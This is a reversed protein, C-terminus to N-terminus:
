YCRILSITCFSFLFRKEKQLHFPLHEPLKQIPLLPPKTESSSLDNSPQNSPIPNSSLVEQYVVDKMYGYSTSTKPKFVKVNKASGVRSLSVYLQGHTFFDTTLCIGIFKYTKGQSRNSTIAFGLRVPFQIRQFEFPLKRDEPCFKIRPILIDPKNANVYPGVAM